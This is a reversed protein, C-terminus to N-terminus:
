PLLSFFQSVTPLWCVFGMPASTSIMVFPISVIKSRLARSAPIVSKRAAFAGADITSATLRKKGKT